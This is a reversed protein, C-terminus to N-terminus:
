DVVIDKRIWSAPIEFDRRLWVAGDLGEFGVAEWGDWSPVTMIKWRSDNFNEAAENKSQLVKKVWSSREGDNSKLGM